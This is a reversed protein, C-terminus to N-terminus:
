TCICHISPYFLFPNLTATLGMLIGTARPPVQGYMDIGEEQADEIGDLLQHWWDPRADQQEVTISIPRKSEKSM